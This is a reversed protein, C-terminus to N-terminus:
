VHRKRVLRQALLAMLNNTAQIGPGTLSGNSQDARDVFLGTEGVAHSQTSISYAGGLFSSHPHICYAALTWMFGEECTYFHVVHTRVLVMSDQLMVCCVWFRLCNLFYPLYLTDVITSWLYKAAEGILHDLELGGDRADPRTKALPIHHFCYQRYAMAWIQRKQEWVFSGLWILFGPSFLQIFAEGTAWHHLIQRGVCSVHTQDRIQSSGM